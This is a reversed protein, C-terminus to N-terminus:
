KIFPFFVSFTSGKGPISQVEVKGQHAQIIHKVIALGLGTGGSEQSRAKDVRYFREFLRSLHQGEIGVGSDQVDIRVFPGEAAAQLLIRGNAPTFKIANDLLNTLVQELRHRDASLRPLTSPVKVEIQHGAAEINKKYMLVLSQVLPALELSEIRMKAEKSEIASLSLLDEVLLELRQTQKHIIGLFKQATESLGTEGQLTEAFGKISTLPTKLEHSVNAVFESRMKLLNKLETIDHFLAVVSTLRGEQVVPSIQMSFVIDQPGILTIEKNVARQFKLAEAISSNIQSHPVVEWYPKLAVDKSRMQFMDSVNPSVYLIKEDGGIVMVGEVMSSLIARLENKEDFSQRQQQALRANLDRILKDKGQLRQVYFRRVLGLSVIAALVCFIAVAVTPNPM